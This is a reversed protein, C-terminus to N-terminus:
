KRCLACQCSRMHNSERELVLRPAPGHLPRLRAQAMLRQRLYANELRLQEVHFNDMAASVANEPPTSQNKSLDM